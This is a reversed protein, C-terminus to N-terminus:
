AAAFDFYDPHKEALRRLIDELPVLHARAAQAAAAGDGSRIADVIKRHGRLVHPFHGPDPLALRRVRDMQAKANNLARWVTPHGSFAMLTQHFEEDLRYFTAPAERRKTAAEHRRLNDALADAAEGSRTETAVRAAAEEVAVRLFLADLVDVVKIPAVFTGRQPFIDVLREDALRLMAERIPTRSVGFAAALEKERLPSRPPHRLTVIEDRLRAYVRGATTARDASIPPVLEAQSQM